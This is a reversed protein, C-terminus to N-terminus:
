PADHDMAHGGHDSLQAAFWAHIAAVLTPDSATYRIQAGDPLESYAVMFQSYGERLAALGPMTEGHITAPAGFDGRQFRAAQEQLHSRILAIQASDAPDDARVQQLGGDPRDDFIHTTRELDFPMVEAGRAAVEAQRNASGIATSLAWSAFGVLGLAVLGLLIVTYPTRRASSMHM